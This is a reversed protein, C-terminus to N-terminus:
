KASLTALSEIKKNQFTYAMELIRQYFLNWQTLETRLRSFNAYDMAFVEADEPADIFEFSPQQTIFSSLATGMSPGLMIYRTKEAGEKTIFYTRLCGKVVFYFENCTEGKALLIQNKKVSKLKMCPLIRSLSEADFNIVYNLLHSLIQHSPM